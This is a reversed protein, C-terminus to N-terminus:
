TKSPKVRFTTIRGNLIREEVKGADLAQKILKEDHMCPTYEIGHGSKLSVFEPVGRAITVGEYNRVDDLFKELPSKMNAGLKLCAWCLNGVIQTRAHYECFGKGCGECTKVVPGECPPLTEIDPKIYSVSCSKTEM